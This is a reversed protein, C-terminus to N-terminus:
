KNVIRSWVEYISDGKSSKGSHHWAGNELRGTFSLSSGVRSSDRSFFEIHETYVSDGFAYRGGGTGYFGRVGPDIAIWQFRSATLLKVTKRTGTQHITQLQGELMRKTIHWNGALPATGDDVMQWKDKNGSHGIILIEKNLTYPFIIKKNVLSPNSAHFEVDIELKGAAARFPGGMTHGFRKVAKNYITYSCYGDVFLWQETQELNTREWAGSLQQDLYVPANSLIFVQILLLIGLLKLRLM